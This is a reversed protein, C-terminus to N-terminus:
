LVVVQLQFDIYGYVICWFKEVNFQGGVLSGCLWLGDIMVVLGCVVLCVQLYFLLCNFQYCLNFFLCQDNVCQLWVLELQYMSVVWFIFWVCMVIGNIQSDDFNGDVIVCLQECLDDSVEVCYCVVVDKLECLIQWMVVNFLGDKDGFYYVVIGSFLGVKKVIIVVIVDVMGIEDIIQFIVWILQECWVLEVGKKLM